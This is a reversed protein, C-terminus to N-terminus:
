SVMYRIEELVEASHTSGARNIMSRFSSGSDADVRYLRSDSSAQVDVLLFCAAAFRLALLQSATAVVGKCTHLMKCAVFDSANALSEGRFVLQAVVAPVVAAVVAPEVVAPEVVAPETAPEVAPETAPETAPEVAPEVAPETAPEVAPETAHVVAPLVNASFPHFVFPSRRFFAALETAPVSPAGAPVIALASAPVPLSPPLASGTPLVFYHEHPRPM